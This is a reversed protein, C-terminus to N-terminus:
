VGDKEHFFEVPLSFTLDNYLFTPEEHIFLIMTGSEGERVESSSCLLLYLQCPTGDALNRLSRSADLHRSFAYCM